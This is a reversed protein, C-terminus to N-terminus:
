VGAAPLPPLLAMCANLIFVRGRQTSCAAVGRLQCFAKREEVSFVATPVLRMRRRIHQVRQGITRWRVYRSNCLHALQKMEAFLGALHDVAFDLLAEHAAGLAAEGADDDAAVVSGYNSAVDADSDDSGTWESGSGSESESDHVAPLQLPPVVQM